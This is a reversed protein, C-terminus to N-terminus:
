EWASRIGNDSGKGVSATLREGHGHPRQVLTGLNRQMLPKSRCMKHHSRLFLRSRKLDAAQEAESRPATIREDLGGKARVWAHLQRLTRVGLVEIGDVLSAEALNDIPVVVAPWGEQKAALVASLGVAGDGIVTVSTRPSVGASVACHHGTPFVDSLTLLSPLLASDAGVPLKVCAKAAADPIM